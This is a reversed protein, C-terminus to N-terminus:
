ADELDRSSIRIIVLSYLPSAHDAASNISGPGAMQMAAIASGIPCKSGARCIHGGQELMPHSPSCPLRDFVVLIMSAVYDLV